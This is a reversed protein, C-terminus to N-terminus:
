LHINKAEPRTFLGAHTTGWREVLPMREEWLRRGVGRDWFDPHVTLPGLTAFTGLRTAFASGALRGDVEAAFAASPDALWRSRVPEAGEAFRSPDPLGLATGFALRFIADAAPLDTGELARVSVGSM